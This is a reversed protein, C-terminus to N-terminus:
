SKRRGVLIYLFGGRERDRKTEIVYPPIRKRRLQFICESFRHTIQKLDDTHAGKKKRDILLALVKTTLVDSEAFTPYFTMQDIDENTPM